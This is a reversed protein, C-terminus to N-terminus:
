QPKNLVIPRPRTMAELTFRIGQVGVGSAKIGLFPFHDPGRQPKSNIQITGVNLLRALKIGSGEDSTFISAQLGYDSENIFKVAEEISSIVIFSVVPAFTEQRIIEMSPIAHDLITPEIYNDKRKGGLVIRAGEAKALIIRKEVLEAAERSILPGLNNEPIRPDGMKMNEKTAKVVMPLLKDHTPKLALVYKIATCRQGSYSFAGKVIEIAVADLDADPLVIAPNNGGCEFLLPIMGIKTAIAKGVASSGTFTVGDINKNTVLYDGISSGSGTVTVILGKPLGAAYFIETLFLASISGQTPPKFVVANGTILAPAIKSVSLNVPYNFPSIALIVGLPVKEVIATKTQDYGPFAEGSLEEGKLHLGEHAFYDIMDASRLIEDVAEAQTKGIEKLLVSSLLHEHERIWDAALHLVQARKVMPINQWLIQAEKARHIAQDIELYNLSQIRGLVQGDIPSVVDLTNGNSSITWKEGDFYKFHPPTKQDHLHSFYDKPM